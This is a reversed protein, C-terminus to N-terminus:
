AFTVTVAADVTAAQTGALSLEVSNGSVVGLDTDYQINNSSTGTATAGVVMASATFVADGDRMANGSVKCLGITEENADNSMSISIAKIASVGQPVTFSSSVSAGGLNDLAQFSTTLSMGSESRSVVIAM